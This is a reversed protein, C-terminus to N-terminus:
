LTIRMEFLAFRNQLVLHACFLNISCNWRNLSFQFHELAHM